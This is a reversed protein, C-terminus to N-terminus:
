YGVSISGYAAGALSRVEASRISMESPPTRLIEPRSIESGSSVAHVGSLVLLVAVSFVIIRAHVIM